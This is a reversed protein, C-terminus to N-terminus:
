SRVETEAPSAQALDLQGEAAMERLLSVTEAQASEIDVLKAAGLTELDDRLRRAATEPMRGLLEEVLDPDAGKLALLLTHGPVAKFFRMRSEGSLLALDNMELQQAKVQELLKPSDASLGTEVEERAAPSMRSLLDAVLGAGDERASEKGQLRRAVWEDMERLAEVPAGHWEALCRVVEQRQLEPLLELTAAAHPRDLQSLVAAVAQPHEDKLLAAVEAPEKWALQQINEGAGAIRSLLIRAHEDGLARTLAADLFEDTDAGIGTQRSAEKEYDDLVDEVQERPLAGMERMVKGLEGVEFPSLYRFVQAAAEEGLALLLVASNKIGTRNGIWLKVVSATIKPDSQVEQRLSDIRAEFAEGPGPRQAALEEGEERIKRNRVRLRLLLVMMLLAATLGAYVPLMEEDVELLVPDKPLLPLQAPKEVVPTKSVEPVKFPMAIVQLSDGRERDFGIAQRALGALKDSEIVGQGASEDVIILVSVQQLSGRPERVHRVSRDVTGAVTGTRRSNETTEESETFDIKATVQVKFATDGLVAALVRSIRGAFDNELRRAYELQNQTLGRYLSALGAALLAGNQDVISVQGAGMGPVSSAVIQRISEVQEESLQKGSGLEVLVSAAPPIQERLFASQKPVALHVRASEVGEITDVSRALDAELGRQYGIQEQFPSLGFRPGVTEDAAPKDGRPLGQAALKYRAIHLQDSPVEIAGSSESIRYDVRLRELAEVVEGGDKDSLELFLVRYEPEKANGWFLALPLALVLLLVAWWLLKRTTGASAYANRLGPLTLGEAM